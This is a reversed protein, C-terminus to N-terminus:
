PAPVFEDCGIDPRGGVIRPDGDIDTALWGFIAEAVGTDVCSSDQHLHCDGPVWFATMDDAEAPQNPDAASAWFGPTIFGPEDDINGAGPCGGEVNCGSVAAAHADIQRIGGRRGNAYMISNIVIPDGGLIGEKANGVVTCHLVTACNYKTLRGGSASGMEIGAGGNGAIICNAFTPNAANTEWLKVGAEANDVIRCNRIRPSSSRCYIGQAAGTV